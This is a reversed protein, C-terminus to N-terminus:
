IFIGAGLRRKYRCHLSPRKLRSGAAIRRRTLKRRPRARSRRSPRRRRRPQRRRNAAPEAAAKGCAQRAAPPAARRALKGTEARADLLVIAETLRSRHRADQRETLTANVGDHSVYPGYRGNKVVIPGGKDPHEGLTKGPDAGFRRGKGPQREERRDLTVARNLGVTFVDESSELNAYTKGHKVYPGFRGVGALDARRRGSSQRSRAAAGAAGAGKRSRHRRAGRREAPQRAEPKRTGKEERGEEAEAAQGTRRAAFLHRLPRRAVDSRSRDGSRRGAGQDGIAGDAGPTM